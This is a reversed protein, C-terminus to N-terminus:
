RRPNEIDIDANLKEQILNIIHTDTLEKSVYKERAKGLILSKVGITANDLIESLEETSKDFMSDIDEPFVTNKYHNEIKLHKIIDLQSESFIVWNESFFVSQQAKMEKLEKVTMDQEDGQNAWEKVVNTHSRYYLLGKCNSLVTVETDDTIKRPAPMKKVPAVNEKVEINKDTM